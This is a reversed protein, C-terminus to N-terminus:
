ARSTDKNRPEVGLELWNKKLIAFRLVESHVSSTSIGGRHSQDYKKFGCKELVRISALNDKYVGATLKTLELTSFAFETIAMIAETAYGKGWTRFDGILYGIEASGLRFDVEALKVNGIHRNQQFVFLGFIIASPSEDTSRVFERLSDRNHSANRSELFQNVKPNNLWNVYDESVDSERLTRIKLSQSRLEVNYGALSQL